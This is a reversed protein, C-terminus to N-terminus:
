FSAMIFELDHRDGGEEPLKVDRDDRPNRRPDVKEESRSFTGDPRKQHWRGDEPNEWSLYCGRPVAFPTKLKGLFDIAAGVTAAANYYDRTVFDSVRVGDIDYAYVECPDCIEVLYNVRRGDSGPTIDPGAMFQQGFPDVLMELLEHSATVSWDATAMVQAYPQHKRDLHIGLGGVPRDVITIPWTGTGPTAGAAAATVEAGMGWEAPLDRQAQITLAAAVNVLEARPIELSSRNLLVVQHQRM